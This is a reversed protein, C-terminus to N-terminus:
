IWIQSLNQVNDSSGTSGASELLMTMARPAPHASLMLADGLAVAVNNIDPVQPM